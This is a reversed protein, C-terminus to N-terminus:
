TLYPLIDMFRRSRRIPCRWYIRRSPWFRWTTPEGRRQHINKFRVVDDRTAWAFGYLINGSYIRSINLLQRTASEGQQHLRNRLTSATPLTITGNPRVYIQVFIDARLNEPMTLRGRYNGATVKIDRNNIIARNSENCTPISSNVDIKIETGNRKTVKLQYGLRNWGRFGDRRHRDYEWIQTVGHSNLWEIFASKVLDGQFINQFIKPLNRWMFGHISYLCKQTATRVAWDQANASLPIPVIDRVGVVM